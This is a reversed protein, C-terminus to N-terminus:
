IILTGVIAGFLLGGCYNQVKSKIKLYHERPLFLVFLNAFLSIFVVLIVSKHVDQIVIPFAFGILCVILILFRQVVKKRRTEDM